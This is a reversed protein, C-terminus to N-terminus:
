THQDHTEDPDFDTAQMAVTGAIRTTASSKKWSRVLDPQDSPTEGVLYLLTVDGISLIDGNNLPTQKHIRRNNVYTGNHSSLDTIWYSGEIKRLQAHQRSVSPDVIQIPNAPGRGLTLVEQRLRFIGGSQHGEEIVLWNKM